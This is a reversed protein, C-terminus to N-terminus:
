SNRIRKAYAATTEMMVKIVKSKSRQEEVTVFANFAAIDHFLGAFRCRHNPLEPWLEKSEIDYTIVLMLSACQTPLNM